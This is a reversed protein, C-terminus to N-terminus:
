PDRPGARLAALDGGESAGTLKALVERHGDEVAGVAADDGFPFFTMRAAPETGRVIGPKSMSPLITTVDSSNRSRFTRGSRAATIPPPAIPQSNAESSESMPELTVMRSASGDIRTPHSVSTALTTLREKLFRPMSMRVPTLIVPWLGFFPEVVISM